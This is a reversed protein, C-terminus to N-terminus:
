GEYVFCIDGEGLESSTPESTKFIVNRVQPVTYSTNPYAKLIGKMTFGELISRWNSWVNEGSSRRIYIVDNPNSWNIAVQLHNINDIGFYTSIQWWNTSNPANPHKCLLVEGSRLNSFLNPDVSGNRPPTQRNIISKVNHPNTEDNVHQTYDALHENVKNDLQMLDESSAKENLVVQLGDVEPITSPFSNPKDSLDNWSTATEIEINGNEDPEINNVTKVKGANELAQSLGEIEEIGIDVNGSEDPGVGNVSSVSGTGDTGKRALLLWYDQSATPTNGINGDVLSMFSSGMYSVINNKTYEMDPNYEGKPELGEVNPLIQNIADTATQADQTAQEANTTATIANQTATEANITAENANDTATNANQTATVVDIKLQSLNSAEQNANAAAQDALQAKEDAYDGKNKAYDGQEKAYDGQTKAYNGQTNAYSAKDNANTAASNANDRANELSEIFGGGVIDEVKQLTETEVREIEAKNGDIDKEIQEFNWNLDNRYQRNLDTGITRYRAM